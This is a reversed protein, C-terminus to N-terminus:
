TTVIKRFNVPDTAGETNLLLVTADPGLGASKKIEALRADSCLQILGALTAAGSEGSEIRSDNVEPYYYQRMAERCADDSVALFLDFGDRIYPWSVPSPKGCNLGAM